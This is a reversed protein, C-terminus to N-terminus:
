GGPGPGMGPGYGGPGRGMMPGGGGMASQGAGFLSGLLRIGILVAHILLGIGLLSGLGFGGARRGRGAPFHREPATSPATAIRGGGEARVAQVEDAIKAVGEKLGGNFDGKKFGDIFANRIALRRERPFAHSYKRSVLVEIKTEKKSILTF